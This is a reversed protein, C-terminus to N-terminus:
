HSKDDQSAGRSRDEDGREPLANMETGAKPVPPEEREKIHDFMHDDGTTGRAVCRIQPGSFSGPGANVWDRATQVLKDLETYCNRNSWVIPDGGTDTDVDGAKHKPADPFMSPTPAEGPEAPKRPGMSRYSPPANNGVIKEASRAANARWDIQRPPLPAARSPDAATEIDPLTPAIVEAPSTSLQPPPTEIQQPSPEDPRDIRLWVLARDAAEEFRHAVYSIRQAMLLLVAHLLLVAAIAIYRSKQDSAQLAHM